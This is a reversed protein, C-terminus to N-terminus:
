TPMVGRSYVTNNIYALPAKHENMFIIDLWLRYSYVCAIHRPKFMTATIAVDVQRSDYMDKAKKKIRKESSAVSDM